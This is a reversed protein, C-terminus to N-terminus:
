AAGGGYRTEAEFRDPDTLWQDIMPILATVSAGHAHAPRDAHQAATIQFGVCGLELAPAIDNPWHDGVSVLRHPPQGDLLTTLLDQLRAPKGGEVIVQDFLEALGLHRLVDVTGTAPSNTLLVRSCKQHWRTLAEALGDPARVGLGTAALAERSALYAGQLDDAPVASCLSAVAAYPDPWRLDEGALVRSFTDQATPIESPDLLAFAADAYAQAPGDGLAVTGDFDLVVVPGPCGTARSSATIM